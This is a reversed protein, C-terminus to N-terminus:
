KGVCKANKARVHTKVLIEGCKFTLVLQSYIVLGDFLEGGLTHILIGGYAKCRCFINQLMLGNNSIRTTELTIKDQLPIHSKTLKSIHTWSKNQLRMRILPFNESDTMVFNQWQGDYVEALVPIDREKLANRTKNVLKKLDRNAMSPGKLAYAVPATNVKQPDYIRDRDSLMFVIVETAEQRWNDYISQFLEKGNASCINSERQAAKLDCVCLMKPVTTCYANMVTCPIQQVISGRFSPVEFLFRSNTEIFQVLESCLLKMAPDVKTPIAPNPRDFLEGAKYWLKNWLTQDFDVIIVSVSSPTFTILLLQTCELVAMTCLVQPVHRVPLEYLPYNPSTESQFICKYEIGLKNHIQEHSQKYECNEIQLCQALGDPSVVLM